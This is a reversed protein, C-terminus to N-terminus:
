HLSSIQVLKDGLNETVATAKNQYTDIVRGFLTIYSELSFQYMTNILSFDNVVFFLKSATRALSVYQGRATLTKKMQTASAEMQHRTEEETEKATQLAKILDLDDIL